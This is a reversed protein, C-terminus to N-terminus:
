AIAERATPTDVAHVSGSLYASISTQNSIPRYFKGKCLFSCRVPIAPPLRSQSRDRMNGVGGGTVRVYLTPAITKQHTPQAIAGYESLWWRWNLVHPQRPPRACREREDLLFANLGDGEKINGAGGRGFSYLCPYTPNLCGRTRSRSMNGFGSRESSHVESERRDYERVIERERADSGPEEATVFLRRLRQPLQPITAQLASYDIPPLATSLWRELPGSM